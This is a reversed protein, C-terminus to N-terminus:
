GELVEARLTAVDVAPRDGHEDVVGGIDCVKFETAEKTGIRVLLWDKRTPLQAKFLVWRPKTLLRPSHHALVVTM